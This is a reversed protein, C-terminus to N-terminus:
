EFLNKFEEQLDDYVSDTLPTNESYRTSFLTMTFGTSILTEREVVKGNKQFSNRIHKFIEEDCIEFKQKQVVINPTNNENHDIAIRYYKISPESLIGENKDNFKLHIIYKYPYDRSLSFFNKMAPFNKEVMVHFSEQRWLFFTELRKIVQQESFMSWVYGSGLSMDAAPLSLELDTRNKEVLYSTIKQLDFVDIKEYQIGVLDVIHSEKNLSSLEEEIFDNAWELIERISKDKFIKKNRILSRYKEYIIYDSEYLSRQELAKIINSYIEENAVYRASDGMLRSLELNITKSTINRRELTSRRQLDMYEVSLDKSEILQVSEESKDKWDFWFDLRKRDSSINGILCVKKGYSVNENKSKFPPFIEYIDSFYNEIILVYTHHLTELYCKSYEEHTLKNLETSLDNKFKVCQIYTKLNIMLMMDLFRNLEDIDSILGSAFIMVEKWNESRMLNEFIDRNDDINFTKVIYYGAFFEKFQKHIFSIVSDIKFVDIRFVDFVTNATYMSQQESFFEDFESISLVSKDFTNFALNGINMLVDFYNKNVKEPLLKARDRKYCIEEFYANFLQSKNYFKTKSDKLVKIGINLFLPNAFLEYYDQRGSLNINNKLLEKHIQFNSLDEIKYEHINQINGTYANIRSTFYFYANTNNLLENVESYFKIRNNVDVIEDIGDLVIIFKKKKLEKRLEEDTIKGFFPTLRSQIYELVSDYVIGYELLKVFIPIYDSYTGNCCLM